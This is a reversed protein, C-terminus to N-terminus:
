SRRRFASCARQGVDGCRLLMLNLSRGAASSAAPCRSGCVVALVTRLSIVSCTSRWRSTSARTLTDGRSISWHMAFRLAEGPASLSYLRECMRTATGAAASSCCIASRVECARLVDVLARLLAFVERLERDGIGIGAGREFAAREAPALRALQRREDGFDDRGQLGAVDRSGIRVGLPRWMKLSSSIRPAVPLRREDLLHVRPVDQHLGVLEMSSSVTRCFSACIRSRMRFPSLKSATAETM